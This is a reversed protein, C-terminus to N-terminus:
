THGVRKWMCIWQHLEEEDDGPKNSCENSSGTSVEESVSFGGSIWGAGSVDAGWSVGYSKSQEQGVSCEVTGDSDGCQQNIQRM